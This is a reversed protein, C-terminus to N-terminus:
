GNPTHRDQKGGRRRRKRLTTSPATVGTEAAAVEATCLALSMAFAAFRCGTARMTDKRALVQGGIARKGLEGYAVRRDEAAATLAPRTAARLSLQIPTRGWSCPLFISTKSHSASLASPGMILQEVLADPEQRYTRPLNSTAGTGYTRKLASTGTSM